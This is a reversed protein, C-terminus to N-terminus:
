RRDSRVQTGSRGGDQQEPGTHVRIAVDQSPAAPWKEDQLFFVLFGTHYTIVDVTYFSYMSIQKPRRYQWTAIDDDGSVEGAGEFM